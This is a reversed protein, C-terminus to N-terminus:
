SALSKFRLRVEVDTVECAPSRVQASFPYVISCGDKLRAGSWALFELRLLFGIQVFGLAIGLASGGTECCPGKVSSLIKLGLVDSSPARNGSPPLPEGTLPEANAM